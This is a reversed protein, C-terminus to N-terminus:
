RVCDYDGHLSVRRLAYVRGEMDANSWMDEVVMAIETVTIGKGALWNWKAGKLKDM